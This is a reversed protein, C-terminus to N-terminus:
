QNLLEIMVQMISVECTELDVDKEFEMEISLGRKNNEEYIEQSEDM